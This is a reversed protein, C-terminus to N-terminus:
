RWRAKETAALKDRWGTKLTAVIRGEAVFGVDRGYARSGESKAGGRRTCRCAICVRGYRTGADVPEVFGRDQTKGGTSRVSIGEGYRRRASDYDDSEGDGHRVAMRRCFVTRGCSLGRRIVRPLGTEFCQHDLM